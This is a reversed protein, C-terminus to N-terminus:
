MSKWRASGPRAARSPTRDGRCRDRGSGPAPRRDRPPAPCRTALRVARGREVDQAITCARASDGASWNAIMVPKRARRSRCAARQGGTDVHGRQDARRLRRGSLPAASRGHGANRSAATSAARSIRARPARARARTRRLWAAHRGGVEQARRCRHDRCHERGVRRRQRRERVRPSGRRCVRPSPANRRRPSARATRRSPSGGRLAEAGRSEHFVRLQLRPRKFGASRHRNYVAVCSLLRSSSCAQAPSRPQRAEAGCPPPRVCAPARCATWAGGCLLPVQLALMGSGWPCAGASPSGAACCARPAPSAPPAPVSGPRRRACADSTGRWSRRPRAARHPRGRSRSLRRVSSAIMSRRLRRVITFRVPPTPAPSASLTRVSCCGCGPRNTTNVSGDYSRMAAAPSRSPPLGVLERARLRRPRAADLHQLHESEVKALLHRRSREHLDVVRAEIGIHSAHPASPRGTAIWMESGVANKRGM